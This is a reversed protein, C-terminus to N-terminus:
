TELHDMGFVPDQAFRMRRRHAVRQSRDVRCGFAHLLAPQAVQAVLRQAQHLCPRRDLQQRIVDPLFEAHRREGVRNVVQVPWRGIGVDLLHGLAPVRALLAERELLEQRVVQTEPVQPRHGFRVVGDRQGTPLSLDIRENAVQRERERSRLRAHDVFDQAIEAVRMWHHSEDLPIDARALGDNGRDGAELRNGAADLNRDHRRRFNEGLLVPSIEAGPELREADLRRPEAAALFRRGPPLREVGDGVARGPEDDARVRKELFTDLELAEGQDDDIFLMTEAHMLPHRQAVLADTAVTM